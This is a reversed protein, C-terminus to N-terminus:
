KVHYFTDLWICIVSQERKLRASLGVKLYTRWIVIDKLHGTPWLLSDPTFGSRDRRQLGRTNQEM